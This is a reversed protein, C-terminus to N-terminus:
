ITSASSFPSRCAAALVIACLPPTTRRAFFHLIQGIDGRRVADRMALFQPQFRLTHGVLLIRGVERAHAVMKEGEEVSLALPKEVCVHMGADLAAMVPTFHDPDSTTVLVGDLDPHARLMEVFDPGAYGKVGLRQALAEAKGPVIDCVAVLESESLNALVRSYIRGMMGLGIVGFRSASM